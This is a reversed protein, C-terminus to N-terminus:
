GKVWTEPSFVGIETSFVIIEKLREETVGFKKSLLLPIYHDLKLYYGKDYVKQLLKILIAFGELGFKAEIIEWKEDLHVDLPFYDVGKKTPRAM